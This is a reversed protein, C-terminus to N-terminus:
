LGITLHIYKKTLNNSQFMIILMQAKEILALQRNFYCYFALYFSRSNQNLDDFIITFMSSMIIQLHQQIRYLVLFFFFHFKLRIFHERERIPQIILGTPIFISLSVFWFRTTTTSVVTPSNSIFFFFVNM